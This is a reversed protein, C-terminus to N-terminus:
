RDRAEATRDSPAKGRRAGCRAKPPQCTCSARAREALESSATCRCNRPKPRSRPRRKPNSRTCSRRYRSKRRAVRDGARVRVSEYLAGELVSMSRAGRPRGPTRNRKWRAGTGTCTSPASRRNRCRTARRVLLREIVAPPVAPHVRRRADGPLLRGPRRPPRLLRGRAGGAFHCLTNDELPVQTRVAHRLIRQGAGPTRRLGDLIGRARGVRHARRKAGCVEAIEHWEVGNYAWVGPRSRRRTATRHDATRPQTGLVRHRRDARPRDAAISGGRGPRRRPHVRSNWAGPRAAKKACKRRPPVHLPSARRAVRRSSWRLSCRGSSRPRGTEDDRPGTSGHAPPPRGKGLARPTPPAGSRSRSASACPRSRPRASRSPSARRSVAPQAALAAYAKGLRLVLM